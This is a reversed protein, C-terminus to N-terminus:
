VAPSLDVSGPRPSTVAVPRTDLAQTLEVHLTYSRSNPGLFDYNTRMDRESFSIKRKRGLGHIVTSKIILGM